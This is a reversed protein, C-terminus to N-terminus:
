CSLGPCPPPSKGATSSCRCRPLLSSSALLFSPRWSWQRPSGPTRPPRGWRGTRVPVTDGGGCCSVRGCGNRSGNARWDASGNGQEEARNECNLSTRPLPADLVTYSGASQGLLRASESQEESVCPASRTSAPVSREVLELPHLHRPVLHLQVVEQLAGLVQLPEVALDM